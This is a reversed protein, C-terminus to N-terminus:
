ARESRNRVLSLLILLFFFFNFSPEGDPSETAGILEPVEKLETPHSTHVGSFRVEM